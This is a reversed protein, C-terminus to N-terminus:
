PRAGTRRDLWRGRAAATAAANWARRASERDGGSYALLFRWRDTAPIPRGEALRAWSRFLRLLNGEATGAGRRFAPPPDLDVLIGEFGNPRRRILINRLNLDGHRLGAGHFRRLLEAVEAVLARRDDASLAADALWSAADRADEVYRLLQEVRRAGGGRRAIALALIEGVRVGARRASETAELERFFRREGFHRDGLLRGAAGGRRCHKWIVREASDPLAFVAHDGRGRVRAVPPRAPEGDVFGVATARELADRRVYVRRRGSRVLPYDAPPCARPM